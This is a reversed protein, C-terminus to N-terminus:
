KEKKRIIKTNDITFSIDGETKIEIDNVMQGAVRDFLYKLQNFNGGKSSKWMRDFLDDAEGEVIKNDIYRKFANMFRIKTTDYTRGKNQGNQFFKNLKATGVNLGTLIEVDSYIEKDEASITDLFSEERRQGYTTEYKEKFEKEPLMKMRRM